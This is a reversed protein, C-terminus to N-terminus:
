KSQGSSTTSEKQRSTRMTSSFFGKDAKLSPNSAYGDIMDFHNKRIHKLLKAQEPKTFQNFWKEFVEVM